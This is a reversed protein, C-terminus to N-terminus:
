PETTLGLHRLVEPPAGDWRPLPVNGIYGLDRMGETTTYFGVATLDRVLDFFRAAAGQGPKADPLYCIEDCIQRREAEALAAFRRGFRTESERDLWVLGGRVQVLARQQGPYPASVYENIYAPVGVASASPSKGDAPIITDCLVALAALEADTLVRPWTGPTPRVLDPDTPTGRPGASGRIHGQSDQAQAGEVLARAADQGLIPLAAAVGVSKLAERRPIAVPEDSM